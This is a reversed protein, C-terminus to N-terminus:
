ERSAALEEVRDVLRELMQRMEDRALRELGDSRIDNSNAGKGSGTRPSKGQGRSVGGKGASGTADSADASKAALDAAQQAAREEEDANNPYKVGEPPAEHKSVIQALELLRPRIEDHHIEGSDFAALVSQMERFFDPDELTPFDVKADPVGLYALLRKFFAAWLKQRSVIARKTPLDLNSASGYSSGAAGPDSLLHILSVEVGTAVMAALARGSAFDYGKGATPMPTLDGAGRVVATQGAGQASAFKLTANEGSKKTPATAKFAFTALAKSMVYGHKLFESYLKAWAIVNVADPIGLPWGGIRNFPQWLLTKKQDVPVNKIQTRRRGTYTDLYYWRQMGKAAGSPDTSQWSRRFAWVEDPFDPHTVVGDIDSLPVRRLERTSDDGLVFAQGDCFPLTELEEHATEGFVNAQNVPNTVAAHAALQDTEAKPRRGPRKPGDAEKEPQTKPLNIGKSWTYSQRLRLARKIIPSKVIAVRVQESIEQIEDLELGTSSTARGVLYDWNEDELRLARDISALAEILTRHEGGVTWERIIDTAREAAAEPSLELVDM